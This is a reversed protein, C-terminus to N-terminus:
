VNKSELAALRATLEKIANVLIPILNPQALTYQNEDDTNVLQTYMADESQMLALVEQAIFGSSKKGKDVENDRMDWEFTRPQLQNIFGLGLSLDAINTKDREDSVFSWSSAAGQFRAHVSGNYLSIENSISDASVTGQGGIVVNNNGTVTGGSLTNYGIATNLSGSINQGSYSGVATNFNGTVGILTSTGLGSNNLGSSLYGSQYGILTCNTGGGASIGLFTATTTTSGTLSGGAGTANITQNPWTGTISINSGAVLTPSTTGTGGNSVPLNGSVQSTLNVNSLSGGLSVTAVGSATSASLSIGNVTTSSAVVSSITGSGGGTANITQNPWTGTITVNTGAVLNPTATGTGGSSVPIIPFVCGSALTVGSLTTATQGLAISTSGITIPTTFNADLESLPISGSQTAFITITM